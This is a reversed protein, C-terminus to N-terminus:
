YYIAKVPEGYTRRQACHRRIENMAVLADNKLELRRAEIRGFAMSGVNAVLTVLQNYVAGPIDSLSWYALGESVLYDHLADIKREVLAADEPEASEAAAKASLEILADNRLDTRTYSAM